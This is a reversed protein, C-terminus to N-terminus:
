VIIDCLVVLFRGIGHQSGTRSNVSTPWGGRRKLLGEGHSVDYGKKWEACGKGRIKVVRAPLWEQYSKPRLGGPPLPESPMENEDKCWVLGFLANGTPTLDQPTPLTGADWGFLPFAFRFAGRLDCFALLSDHHTHTHPM